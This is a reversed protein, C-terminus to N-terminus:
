FPIQSPSQLAPLPLSKRWKRQTGSVPSERGLVLGPSGEALCRKTRLPIFTLQTLEEGAALNLDSVEERQFIAGKATTM